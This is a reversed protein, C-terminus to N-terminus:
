RQAGGGGVVSMLPLRRDSVGEEKGVRKESPTGRLHKHSSPHRDRHSSPHDDGPTTIAVRTDMMQRERRADNAVTMQDLVANMNDFLPTYVNTRATRKVKWWGTRVLRALAGKVHGVSLGCREAILEHSPYCHGTKENVFTWLVFCVEFDDPRLRRDWAACKMADLKKSTFTQADADPRRKNSKPSEEYIRTV